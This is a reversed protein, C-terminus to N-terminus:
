LMVPDVVLGLERFVEAFAYRDGNYLYLMSGYPNSRQPEGAADLFALRGRIFCIASLRSNFVDRQWYATEFRQGPLLAVVHAGFRTEEHLKATWKHLEKGYPPNLFIAVHGTWPELLGDHPDGTFFSAAGTPNAESTAPDLDILDVGTSKLFYARVLAVVHPPTFFEVSKCSKDVPVTM